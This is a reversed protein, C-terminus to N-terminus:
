LPKAVPATFHSAGSTVARRALPRLEGIATCFRLPPTIAAPSILYLQVPAPENGAMLRLLVVATLLVADYKKLGNVSVAFQGAPQYPDHEM